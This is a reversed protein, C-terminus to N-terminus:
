TMFGSGETYSYVGAFRRAFLAQIDIAVEFSVASNSWVAALGMKAQAPRM